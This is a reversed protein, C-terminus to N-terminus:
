DSNNNGGNNHSHFVTTKIVVEFERNPRDQRVNYVSHLHVSTKTIAGFGQNNRDQQSNHYTVRM